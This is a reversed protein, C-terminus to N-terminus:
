GTVVPCEEAVSGGVLDCAGNGAEGVSICALQGMVGPEEKGAM